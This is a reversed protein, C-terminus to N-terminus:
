PADFPRALPEGIFVGQGPTAVSKWYAELLTEGALYHRMVVAPAPFKDAIACPETVTGYSGTAGAELWRLSSMQRADTLRGGGSTLHDAVAGPLFRNSDLAAVAKAGTFYFMVDDRGELHDAQVYEIRMAADQRAALAPFADARVNRRPDSTRVLYATGKPRTGDAAVGRDILAKAHDLDTAALMMTPRIAFDDYPRASASDFYALRKTVSCRKEGCFAPDFGAAFATTISMCGVRYPQAWTLVYAQVGAPTRADVETKIRQFAERGLTVRQADFRVHIINAAPVGRRERYYAGIQGSLPDADNVIVALTVADIGHDAASARGAPMRWLALVLVLAVALAGACVVGM